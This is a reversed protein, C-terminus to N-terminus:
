AASELRSDQMKIALGVRNANREVRVVQGHCKLLIMRGGVDLEVTLDIQTGLPEDSCLELYLGTASVDRTAGGVGDSASIPLAVRERPESRLEEKM